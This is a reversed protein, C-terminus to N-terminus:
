DSGPMEVLTPVAPTVCVWYFAHMDSVSPTSRATTISTSKPDKKNTNPATEELRSDRNSTTIQPEM